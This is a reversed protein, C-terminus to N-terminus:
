SSSSAIQALDGDSPSTVMLTPMKARQEAAKRKMDRKYKAVLIHPARGLAGTPFELSYDIEVNMLGTLSEDMLREEPANEVAQPLDFTCDGTLTWNYEYDVNEDFSDNFEVVELVSAYYDYELTVDEPLILDPLRQKTLVLSDNLNDFTGPTYQPVESMAESPNPDEVFSDDWYTIPEAPTYKWELTVDEPLILHELRQKTLVLSDNAKSISRPAPKSSSRMVGPPPRVDLLNEVDHQALYASLDFTEDAETTEPEKTAIVINTYRMWLGLRAEATQPRRRLPISHAPRPYNM